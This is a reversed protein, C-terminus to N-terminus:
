GGFFNEREWALVAPDVYAARPLMHSQGFPRLSPALEAPDIPAVRSTRADTMGVIM